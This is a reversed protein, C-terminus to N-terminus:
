GQDPAEEGDQDRYEVAKSRVSRLWDYWARHWAEAMQKEEEERQRAQRYEPSQLLADLKKQATKGRRAAKSMKVLTSGFIYVWFLLFGLFLIPILIFILDTPFNRFFDMAFLYLRLPLTLVFWLGGVVLSLAGEGTGWQNPLDMLAQGRGAILEALISAAGFLCYLVVLAYGLRPLFGRERKGTEAVQELVKRRDELPRDYPYDYTNRYILDPSRRSAGGFLDATYDEGFYDFVFRTGEVLDSSKSWVSVPDPWSDIVGGHDLVYQQMRHDLRRRLREHYGNITACVSAAKQSSSNDENYHATLNGQPSDEIEALATHFAHAFTGPTEADAWSQLLTYNKPPLKLEEARM